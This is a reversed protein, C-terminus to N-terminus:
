FTVNFRGAFFNVGGIQSSYDFNNIRQYDISISTSESTAFSYYIEFVKEDAYHNGIGPRGFIGPYGGVEHAKRHNGTLKGVEYAVGVVDNTRGWHSGPVDFGAMMSEDMDQYHRVDRNDDQRGYKAFANIGLPLSQDISIGFGGKSLNDKNDATNISAADKTLLNGSSDFAAYEGYNRFAYIRYTGKIEESHDWHFAAEGIVAHKHDINDLYSDSSMLAGSLTVFSTDMAARLGYTYGHGQLDQVYDFAGDNCIAQNLFQTTQDAVRDGGDFYDPVSWKGIDLTIKNNASSGVQRVTEYYIRAIYPENHNDSGEMVDNNVMAGGQLPEDVGAGNAYEIDFFFTDSNNLTKEVFLDSSLTGTAKKHQYDSYNPDNLMGSKLSLSSTQLISTMQGSITIGKLPSSVDSAQKELKDLRVEFDGNDIAALTTDAAATETTFILSCIFAGTFIRGTIKKM